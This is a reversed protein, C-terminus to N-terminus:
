CKNLCVDVSLQIGFIFCDFMGRLSMDKNMSTPLAKLKVLAALVVPMGCEVNDRLILLRSFDM